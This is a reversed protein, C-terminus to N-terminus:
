IKLFCKLGASTASAGVSHLMPVMFDDAMPNRFFTGCSDVSDFNMRYDAQGDEACCM